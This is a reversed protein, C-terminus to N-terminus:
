VKQSIVNKFLDDLNEFQQEIRADIIGNDSDIIIGKDLIESDAEIRVNTFNGITKEVETVIDPMADYYTESVRILLNEKSQIELILKELLNKLYEEDNKIESLTIWKVLNKILHYLDDKQKKLVKEKFSMIENLMDTLLNTKEHVEIKLQEYIDEKGSEMGASRGMEFAKEYIQTVRREVEVSIKDEKEKEELNQIGRYKKVIPSIKFSNKSAQAREINLVKADVPSCKKLNAIDEFIYDFAGDTNERAKQNSGIESYTYETINSDVTNATM